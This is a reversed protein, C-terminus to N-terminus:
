HHIIPDRFYTCSGHAVRVVGEERRSGTVSGGQTRLLLLSLTHPTRVPPCKQRKDISLPQSKKRITRLPCVTIRTDANRCRRAHTSASNRRGIPPEPVFYSVNASPLDNNIILYVAQTFIKSLTLRKKKRKLKNRCEARLLALIPKM